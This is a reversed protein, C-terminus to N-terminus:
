TFPDILKNNYADQIPVWKGSIFQAIGIYKGCIAPFLLPDVHGCNMPGSIGWQPGKFGQILTALKASTASAGGALGYLKAATLVDSFSPGAFGTYDITPAYKDVAAIYVALQQSTTLKSDYMFYNIGYDGFYWGNPYNGLTQKLQKGFCLGTTVVANHLHLATAGQAFSICQQVPLLPVFMSGAPAAAEAAEVDSLSWPSAIQEGTVTIGKLYKSTKFLLNFATQSGSDGQLYFGTVSTPKKGTGGLGIFKAMGIVVGPSGPLYTVGTGAAPKQPPAFDTSTLGNGVIVPIHAAFLTQYMQGDPQAIVTGTLVVKVHASVMSAACSSATASTSVDCEDIALKHGKVGDLSKNILDLAVDAGQVNEPYAPTGTDDNLFGITITSGKAAKNAVGGIYKAALKIDASTLKTPYAPYHTVRPSEAASSVTAFV